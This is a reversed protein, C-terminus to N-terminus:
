GAGWGRTLSLTFGSKLGNSSLSLDDDLQKGAFSLRQQDTPIGIMNMIKAKVTNNTDYPKLWLKIPAVDLTRVTIQMSSARVVITQGDQINYDSLTRGKELVGKKGLVSLRQASHHIGTEVQSIGMIMASMVSAEVNLTITKGTPLKVFIM